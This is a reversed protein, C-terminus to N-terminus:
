PPAEACGRCVRTTPLAELRDAGIARGCHECSGFTGARLRDLAATLETENNRAIGLLSAVRAREYGITSGEADHEDDPSGATAEAIGALDNELDAVIAQVESRARALREVPDSMESDMARAGSSPSHQGARRVVPRAWDDGMSEGQSGPGHRQPEIEMPWLNGARPHGTLVLLFHARGAALM